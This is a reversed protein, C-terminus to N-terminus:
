ELKPEVGLDGMGVDRTLSKPYRGDVVKRDHDGINSLTQFIDKVTKTINDKETQQKV